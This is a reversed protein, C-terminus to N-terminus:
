RTSCSKSPARRQAEMARIDEILELAGRANQLPDNSPAQVEYNEIEITAPQGREKGDPGVEYM